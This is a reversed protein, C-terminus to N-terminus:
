SNINNKINSSQPAEKKKKEIRNFSSSNNEQTPLNFSQEQNNEDLMKIKQEANKLKEQAIKALGIGKEYLKLSEELPIKDNQLKTIIEELDEQAKEFSIDSNM